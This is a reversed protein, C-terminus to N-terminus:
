GAAVRAERWLRKQQQDRNAEAADGRLMKIAVQRGLREDKAEYVVGMGGEGLKREIRYPGIQESIM